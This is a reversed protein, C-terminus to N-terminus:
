VVASWFPEIFGFLSQFGAYLLVILSAAVAAKPQEFDLGNRAEVKRSEFEFIDTLFVGLVLVSMVMGGHPEVILFAFSALVLLVNTVSHPAYRSLAEDDDSAAAQKRYTRHALARTAMNALVLVLIVAPLYPEVAELPELPVLFQLPQM